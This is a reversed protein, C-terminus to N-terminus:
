RIQSAAAGFLTKIDQDTFVVGGAIFYDKDSSSKGTKYDLRTLDNAGLMAYIYDSLLYTAYSKIHATRRFPTTRWDFAELTFKVRDNLLFIDSAIGGTSEFLGFRLQAVNWRKALQANFRLHRRETIIERTTRSNKGDQSATQENQELDETTKEVVNASLDTIGLLYYKDPRTRFKFNFYHQKVHEKRVEGHYDVGIELTRAASLLTRVDKVAEQVEEALVPDNILKGISGEGKDIKSAISRIDKTAKGIEVMSQELSVLINEVKDRNKTKLLDKLNVTLTKINGIIDSLDSKKDGLVQALTSSTKHVDQIIGDIHTKNTTILDKLGSMVSQFDKVISKLNSSGEETGIAAALSSTIKKIDKGIDSAVSILKSLSAQDPSPSLFDGDKMYEGTDIERKIDIYVDGLLGKEKVQVTSGVPIKVSALVELEIRTHNIELEVKVVKGINVGNTKVQTKLLVGAADDLITYYTVNNKNKFFDPNLVFVIYLIAVSSVLTFLGVKFELNKNMVEEPKDREALRKM